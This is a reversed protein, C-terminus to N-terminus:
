VVWSLLLLGTGPPLKKAKVLIKRKLEEPSPLLPQDEVVPDVYLMDGLFHKMHEAM